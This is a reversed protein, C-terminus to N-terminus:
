DTIVGLAEQARQIKILARRLKHNEKRLTKIETRLTAIIEDKTPQQEMGASSGETGARSSGSASGGALGADRDRARPPSQRAQMEGWMRRLNYKNAKWVAEDPVRRLVELMNPLSLAGCVDAFYNDELRDLAAGEHGGGGSPSRVWDPDSLLEQALRLRKYLTAGSKDRLEALERLMASPDRM